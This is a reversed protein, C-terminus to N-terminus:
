ADSEPRERVGRHGKTAIIAQGHKELEATSESKNALSVELVSNKKGISKSKSTASRSVATGGPSPRNQNTVTDSAAVM